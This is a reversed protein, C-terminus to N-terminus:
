EAKPEEPKVEEAAKAEAAKVAAAELNLDLLSSNVMDLDKQLVQINYQVHGAKLCLNQYEGQIDQISRKKDSM